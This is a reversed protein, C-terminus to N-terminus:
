SLSNISKYPVEEIIDNYNVEYDDVEYSDIILKGYDKIWEIKDEESLTNFRDFKEDTMTCELHGERLHGQVYNCNIRVTKM